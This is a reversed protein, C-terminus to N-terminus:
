ITKWSGRNYVRLSSASRAYDVTTTWNPQLYPFAHIDFYVSQYRGKYYGDSLYYPYYPYYPYYTHGYYSSSPYYYPVDGFYENGFYPYLPYNTFGDIPADTYYTNDGYYYSSHGYGESLWSHYTGRWWPNLVQGSAIGLFLGLLALSLQLTKTM